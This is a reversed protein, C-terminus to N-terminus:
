RYYYYGQPYYPQYEVDPPRQYYYRNRYAPYAYSSIPRRPQPYYAPRQVYDPDAPAVDPQQLAFPGQPQPPPRRIVRGVSPEVVMTDGEIMPGAAQRVRPAERTKRKAVLAPSPAKGAIVVKTNLVGQEKVLAFLVKANNPALRVCGASAPSGLRRTELSGHIAHGRETFFISHPMPADDWEKSYHDEEMRFARFNGGPTDHGNRGTSVAWNYMQEGDVSVTMRQSTKDVNILVAAPATSAMAVTMAAGIVFAAPLRTYRM